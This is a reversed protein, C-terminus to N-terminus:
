VRQARVDDVRRAHGRQVHVHQREAASASARARGDDVKAASALTRVGHEHQVAGRVGAARKVHSVLLLFRGRALDIDDRYVGLRPM